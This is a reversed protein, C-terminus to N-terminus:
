LLQAPSSFFPYQPRLENMPNGPVPAWEVPYLVCLKLLCCLSRQETLAFPIKVTNINEGKRKKKENSAVLPYLIM